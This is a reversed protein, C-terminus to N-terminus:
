AEPCAVSALRIGARFLNTISCICPFVCSFMEQAARAKNPLSFTKPFKKSLYQPYIIELMKECIFNQLQIHMKQYFVLCDPRNKHLLQSNSGKTTFIFVQSLNLVSCFCLRVWSFNRLSDQRQSAALKKLCIISLSRKM